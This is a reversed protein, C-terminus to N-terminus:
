LSVHRVFDSTAINLNTADQFFLFSNSKENFKYAVEVM